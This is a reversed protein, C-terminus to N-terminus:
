FFNLSCGFRIKTKRTKRLASFGLVVAPYGDKEVTKVQTVENPECQVVTIPIVRGDDQFIRTMGIKKGLIGSM